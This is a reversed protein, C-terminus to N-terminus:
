DYEHKDKKPKDKVVVTEKVEKYHGKPIASCKEYVEGIEIWKGSWIFRKTIEIKM